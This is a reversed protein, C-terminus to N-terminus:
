FYRLIQAQVSNKGTRISRKFYTGPLDLHAKIVQLNTEFDDVSSLGFCINFLTAVRDYHTYKHHYYDIMTAEQVIRNAVQTAETNNGCEASNQLLRIAM